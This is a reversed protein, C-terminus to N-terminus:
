SELKIVNLITPLNPLKNHNKIETSIHNLGEETYGFNATGCVLVYGTASGKSSSQMYAVYWKVEGAKCQIKSAPKATWDAANAQGAVICFAGFCTILILKLFKKM